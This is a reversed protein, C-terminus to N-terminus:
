REHWYLTSTADIRMLDSSTGGTGAIIFDLVYYDGMGQKGRASYPSQDEVAGNEDDDYVLTKNMAHWLKREKVVGNANGSQITWTRDYKVTIRRNDTPATIPDIWDIGESGKFILANLNNRYNPTQNVSINFMLRAVGSSSETWWQPGGTDGTFTSRLPEAGKYTFCIRRHFWPLGSSTQIRLHESLGRMYCSTATRSAEMVVTSSSAQTGPSLDRATALWLFVGGTAASVFAPQVAPTVSAGATSTNSVTLMTDRKKRSTM